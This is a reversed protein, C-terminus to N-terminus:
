QYQQFPEPNDHEEKWSKSLIKCEITDTSKMRTMAAVMCKQM